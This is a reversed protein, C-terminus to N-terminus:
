TEEESEHQLYAPKAPQNEISGDLFKKAFNGRGEGGLRESPPLQNYSDSDTFKLVQSVQVGAVQWYVAGSRRQTSAKVLHLGSEDFQSGVHAALAKRQEDLPLKGFDPDSAMQVIPDDAM